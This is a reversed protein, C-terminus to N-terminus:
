GCYDGGALTAALWPALSIVSLGVTVGLIIEKWENRSYPDHNTILMFGAYSIVLVSALVALLRISDAIAELPLRGGVYATQNLWPLLM